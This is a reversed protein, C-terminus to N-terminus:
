SLNCMNLIKRTHENQACNADKMRQLVSKAKSSNAEKCYAYLMNNYISAAVDPEINASVHKDKIFLTYAGEMWVFNKNRAHAMIMAVYTYGDPHLGESKMEEFLEITRALSTQPKIMINYVGVDHALSSSQMKLFCDDMRKLDAVKAYGEIMTRFMSGTPSRHKAFEEEAHVMDRRQIMDKMVALSAEPSTTSAPLFETPGRCGQETDIALNVSTYSLPTSGSVSGKHQPRRDGIVGHRNPPICDVSLVFFFFFLIFASGMM